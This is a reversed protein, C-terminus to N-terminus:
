SSGGGAERRAAKKRRKGTPDIDDWVFKNLKVIKAQARYEAPVINRAEEFRAQHRALDGLAILLDLSGPDGRLGAKYEAEADGPREQAQYLDGLLQHARPSDPAMALLRDYEAQALVGGLITMYYLADTNRPARALVKHLLQYAAEFRGRAAEARAMVIQAGLDAPAVALRQRALEIAQAYDGRDFARACQAATPAPPPAAAALGLAWLMLSRM